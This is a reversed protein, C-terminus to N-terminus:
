DDPFHLDFVSILKYRDSHSDDCLACIVFTPLFTFLPGRCVTPPFTFQHLWQLFNTHLNRFFSFISSGYSGPIGSRLVYRFFVFVVIEFLYMEGLLVMDMAANSVIALSHFLRHTWWCIFPYLLITYLPISSLWLFSHFRAMHLLM